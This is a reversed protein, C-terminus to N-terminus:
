DVNCFRARQDDHVGYRDAPETHKHNARQELERRNQRTQSQGGRVEVYQPQYTQDDSSAQEKKAEMQDVLSEVRGASHHTRGRQEQEHRNQRDARHKSGQEPASPVSM